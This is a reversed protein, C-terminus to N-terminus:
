TLGTQWTKFVWWSPFQVVTGTSSNQSNERLFGQAQKCDSGRENVKHRNYRIRGGHETRFLRIGEEQHGERLYEPDATLHGWLQRRELGFLVEDGM